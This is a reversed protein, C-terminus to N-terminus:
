RVGVGKILLLGIIVLLVLEAGTFPQTFYEAIM